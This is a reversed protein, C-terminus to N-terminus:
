GRAPVRCRPASRHRLDRHDGVGALREAAAQGLQPALQRPLADVVREPDLHRLARVRRLLDFRREGLAGLQEEDPAAVPHHLAADVREGARVCRERDQRGAGGVQERRVEADRLVDLLGDRDPQVALPALEVDSAEVALVERDHGADAEVGRHDLSASPVSLVPEAAGRVDPGARLFRRAFGNLAFILISPAGHYSPSALQM